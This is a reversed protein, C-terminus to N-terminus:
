RAADALLAVSHATLGFIVEALVFGANLVSGLAFVGDFGAPPAHHHGGPGHDHGAHDHHDHGPMTM